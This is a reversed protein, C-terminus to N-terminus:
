KLNLYLKCNKEWTLKKASNRGNRIIKSCDNTVVYTLINTIENITPNILFGNNDNIIFGDIGEGKTGITVCNCYMAEPYVIGFGEKVSPLIFCYAKSLEKFVKENSLHGLFLIKDELRYEKVLSILKEKLPGEGVIKLKYDPFDESFNAFARILLDINKRKAYLLAVTIIVKDKKLNKPTEFNEIGNFIVEVNDIGLKRLKNAYVNSVAVCRDVNKAVRILRDRGNKFKLELDLDGGHFTIIVPLNSIRNKYLYAAYGECRFTHADIFILNSYKEIKKIHKKVSLYYLYANYNYRSKFFLGSTSFRKFIKVIVGDIIYEKNKQFFNLIPVTPYPALVIVNYGLKVYEKAHSHTYTPYKCYSNQLYHSLIIITKKM